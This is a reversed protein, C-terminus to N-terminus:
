DTDPSDTRLVVATLIDSKRDDIVELFISLALLKQPMKFSKYRCFSLYFLKQEFKTPNSFLKAQFIVVTRLKSLILRLYM